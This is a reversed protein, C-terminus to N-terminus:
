SGDAPIPDPTSQAASVRLAGAEEWTYDPNDRRKIIFALSQMLLGKPQDAQGLADLPQGTRAEIEVVEGITLDDIDISFVDDIDSM